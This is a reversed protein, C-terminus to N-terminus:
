ENSLKRFSNDCGLTCASTIGLSRDSWIRCSKSAACPAWLWDSWKTRPNSSSAASADSSAKPRDDPNLQPSYPPLFFLQLKGGQSEIYQRVLASWPSWRGGRVGSKYCRGDPAAPFDQLSSCHRYRRAAHLSIRGQPQGGLMNLSFRRGTATVM